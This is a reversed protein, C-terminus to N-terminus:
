SPQIPVPATDPLSTLERGRLDPHWGRLFLPILFGIFALAAAAAFGGTAGDADILFGALASGM